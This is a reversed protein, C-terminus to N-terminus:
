LPTVADRSAAIQNTSQREILGSPPFVLTHKKLTQGALLRDLMAAAQFAQEELPIAVTTIPVESHECILTLNGSGVVALDRPVQRGIELASEIATAALIDDEAFLGLPQPLRALRRKFWEGIGIGLTAPKQLEICDHGRQLLRNRFGEQRRLAHLHCSHHFSAFHRHGQELLHDAAMCGVAYDDCQVNPVPLKLDNCGYLVTPIQRATKRIFRCLDPRFTNTTLMGDARWDRPITGHYVFLTNLIWNAQRAYRLEALIGPDIFGLIILIRKRKLMM